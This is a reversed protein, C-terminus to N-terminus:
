IRQSYIWIRQLNAGAPISAHMWFSLLGKLNPNGLAQAMTKNNHFGPRVTVAQWASCCHKVHWYWPRSFHHKSLTLGLIDGCLMFPSVEFCTDSAKISSCFVSFIWHLFLVFFFPPEFITTWCRLINAIVETSCFVHSLNTRSQFRAERTKRGNNCIKNGISCVTTIQLFCIADQFLHDYCFFAAM